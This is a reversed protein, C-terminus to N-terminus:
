VETHSGLVGYTERTRPEQAISLFYWLGFTGRNSSNRAIETDIRPVYTLDYGLTPVNFCM